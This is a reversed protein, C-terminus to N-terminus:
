SRNLNGKPKQKPPISGAHLHCYAEHNYISLVHKCGYHKCKRGKRSSTLKVM